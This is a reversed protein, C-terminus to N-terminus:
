RTRGGCQCFGEPADGNGAEPSAALHEALDPLSSGQPSREPTKFDDDTARIWGFGRFPEGTDLRAEVAELSDECRPATRKLLEALMARQEAVADVLSDVRTRDGAIRATLDNLRDNLDGLTM